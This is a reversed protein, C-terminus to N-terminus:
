AFHSLSEETALRVEGDRIIHRMIYHPRRKV